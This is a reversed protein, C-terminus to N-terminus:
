GSYDELWQVVAEFQSRQLFRYRTVDFAKHLKRWVTNPRGKEKEMTKLIETQEPTIYEPVAVEPEELPPKPLPCLAVEVRSVRQELDDLRDKAQYAEDVLARILHAQSKLQAANRTLEGAHRVLQLAMGKLSQEDSLFSIQEEVDLLHSRVEKAVPSDRLVMGIRLAARRPYIGLGRNPIEFGFNHRNELDKKSMVKYGDGLLEEKHRETAKEVTKVPVRYFDALQRKTAWATGPLCVLQGVRDLVSLNADICLKDRLSKSEVLIIEDM